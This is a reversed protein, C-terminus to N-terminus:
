SASTVGKRYVRGTDVQEFGISRCLGVGAEDDARVQLEGIGFFQDQLFRLIHTVLMKALGQRRLDPRVQVDVIGASPYGWRWSFGELEWAIARAAPLNTLRDV